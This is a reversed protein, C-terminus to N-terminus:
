SRVSIMLARPSQDTLSDGEYNGFTETISFGADALLRELEQPEFLRVRELVRRGDEVLHMEKFVYRGDDSIRREVKVRRGGLTLEEHEVLRERVHSANLYDLVFRGGRTLIRGVDKLVAGHQADTEFYGFSTFLNVVVEFSQAAFPLHRMDGRVVTIPPAFDTRARRLLPASLDLGVVQGAAGRILDSHRGQGCALDLVRRGSLPVVGAVLEVAAAADKEDRHPYMELYTDGFWEEFWEAM